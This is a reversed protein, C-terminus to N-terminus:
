KTAGFAKGAKRKVQEGAYRIGKGKYPEPPRVKRVVAAFQGVAQKDISTLTIHTDDPLVCTVNPPIPLDVPDSFGVSLRLTKGSLAGKYGTGVIELKKEFPKAVGAVMNNILARVLGHVARAEGDDGNRKVTVERRAGDWEATVRPHLELSLEGTKGKVSIKRGSITVDIGAPVPVPKKGIRSM